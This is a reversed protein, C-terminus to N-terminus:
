KRTIIFTLIEGQQDFWEMDYDDIQIAYRNSNPVPIRKDFASFDFGIRELLQNNVYKFSSTGILNELHKRNKDLATEEYVNMGIKALEIAREAIKSESIKKKQQYKCYDTKGHKEPCYRQLGHNAEFLEGCYECFRPEPEHVSWPRDISDM